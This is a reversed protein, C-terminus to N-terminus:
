FRRLHFSGLDIVLCNGILCFKIYLNDPDSEEDGAKRFSCYTNMMQQSIKMIYLSGTTVRPCSGLASFSMRSNTVWITSTANFM